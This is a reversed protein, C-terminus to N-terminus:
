DRLFVPPTALTQVHQKVHRQCHVFRTIITAFAAFMAPRADQAAATIRSATNTHAQDVILIDFDSLVSVHPYDHAEAFKRHNHM